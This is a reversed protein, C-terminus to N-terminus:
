SPQTASPARANCACGSCDRCACGSCYKCACGFCSKCVYGPFGNCYLVLVILDTRVSCDSYACSFCSKWACFLGLWWLLAHWKPLNRTANEQFSGNHVIEYSIQRYKNLQLRYKEDNLRYLILYWTINLCTNHNHYLQYKSQASKRTASSQSCWNCERVIRMLLCCSPMWPVHFKRFGDM